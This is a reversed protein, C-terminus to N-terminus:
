GPALSKALLYVADLVTVIVLVTWLPRVWKRRRPTRATAGAPSRAAGQSITRRRTSARAEAGGDPDPGAVPPLDLLARLKDFETM